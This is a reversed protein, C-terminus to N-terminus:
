SFHVCLTVIRSSEDFKDPTLLMQMSPTDPQIIVDVSIARGLYGHHDYYIDDSTM